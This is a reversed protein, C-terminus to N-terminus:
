SREKEKTEVLRQNPSDGVAEANPHFGGCSHISLGCVRCSIGGNVGRVANPGYYADLEDQERFSEGSMRRRFREVFSQASNGKDSETKM